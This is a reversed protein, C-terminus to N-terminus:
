LVLARHRIAGRLCGVVTAGDHALRQAFGVLEMPHAVRPGREQTYPAALALAMLPRRHALVCAIALAVVKADRPRLFVRAWLVERRIEPYRKVVWAVNAQRQARQLHWGLGPYTVDHYVIAGTEFADKWGARRMAFGAATDEWFHGVVEDFGESAGFPETRFFVNCSEFRGTREEVELTAPWPGDAPEAPLTRGTVVGVDPGRLLTSVGARLWGPDVTCDSDTFAIIAGRSLHAARNRIAGVSGGLVEVRVPVTATAALERCAEATGDTSENDLVLVEYAPYDIALLSDMCRLMRERRNKVPVAVTVM